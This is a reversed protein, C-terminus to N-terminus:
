DMYRVKLKMDREHRDFALNILQTILEKNSIGSLEFLKRYMSINTFGPITNLENLILRDPTLFFDVRSMGECELVTFAKVAMEQILKVTKEELEAPASLKAKTDSLYKAEYDYFDTIIEGPVSAVPNENGLVACELERGIIYEEVIIKNDFFFANDISKKLEEDTGAKSLGVSSGANAPKVVLPFGFGSVIESLIESDFQNKRLCVYRAISIGAEQLLKKTILKDMAMASGLVGPGVFPIGAVKLLGQVSGDEGNPGHLVPFVIDPNVTADGNITLMKCNGSSLDLLLGNGADPEFDGASFDDSPCLYWKGRKDIFLLIPDFQERDLDKYVNSASIISIEHETNKGGFLIGVKKKM